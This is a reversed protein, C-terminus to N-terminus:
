NSRYKQQTEEFAKYNPTNTGTVNKWYSLDIELVAFYIDEINEKNSQLVSDALLYEQNYTLNFIRNLLSDNVSALSNLAFFLFSILFAFRM